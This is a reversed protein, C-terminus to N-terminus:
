ADRDYVVFSWCDPVFHGHKGGLSDAAKAYPSVVVCRVPQFCFGHHVEPTEHLTLLQCNAHTGPKGVRGNHNIVHGSDSHPAGEAILIYGRKCFQHPMWAGEHLYRSEIRKPCADIRIVIKKGIDAAKVM